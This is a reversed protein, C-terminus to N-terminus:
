AKIFQNCTQARLQEQLYWCNSLSMSNCDSLFNGSVLWETHTSVHLM